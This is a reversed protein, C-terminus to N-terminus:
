VGPPRIDGDAPHTAAPRGAGILGHLGTQLELEVFGGLDRAGIVRSRPHGWGGSANGSATWGERGTRYRGCNSGRGGQAAISSLRGGSNHSRYIGQTNITFDPSWCALVPLKEASSLV